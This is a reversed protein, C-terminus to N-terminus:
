CSRPPGAPGASRRPATRARDAVAEQAADDAREALRQVAQALDLAGLQALQLQPRRRHDVPGLTLSGSCVPMLAMSAMTGIPRPWRSSIMPSRCVPLVAIAISVIMLWFSFQSEPSGARLDAADVHRDALLAGRDGLHALRQLVGARQLVGRDHHGLGGVRRAVLVDRGVGARGDALVPHIVALVDQDDEVVQGLLGLGVAGDRQQQAARRAALGVGAVHEVQVGPQQLAARLQGLLQAAPRHGPQRDHLGLGVVDRGVDRRVDDRDGVALDEQLGVQEVGTDPGAMLTPWDTERTPPSAWTLAMFFTAPPRFSDSDCNRSRSANAENAESRSAADRAWSSRPARSTSSSLCPWYLGIGTSRWTTETQAPM